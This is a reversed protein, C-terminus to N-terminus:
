PAFPNKRIRGPSPIRVTAEPDLSVREVPNLTADPDFVTHLDTAEPDLAALPQTVTADPDLAALPQAVTAEPDFNKSEEAM